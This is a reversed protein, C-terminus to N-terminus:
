GDWPPRPTSNSHVSVFSVQHADFIEVIKAFDALSRTLRDVKYVVVADIKEAQVDKILRGLAPRNM